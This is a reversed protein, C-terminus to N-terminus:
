IDKFYQQFSINVINGTSGTIGTGGFGILYVYLENKNVNLGAYSVNRNFKIYKQFYKARKTTSFNIYGDYLVTLTEPDIAGRYSPFDAITLPRKGSAVIMRVVNFDPNATLVAPDQGIYGRMKVGLAKIMDGDRNQQADGQVVSSWISNLVGTTGFSGGWDLQGTKTESQRMITKKAIATVAKKFTSARRRRNRRVSKPIYIKGAPM